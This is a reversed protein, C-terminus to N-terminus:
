EGGLYTTRGPMSYAPAKDIYTNLNVEDYRGPGPTKFISGLQDRSHMSYAPASTKTAVGRGIM